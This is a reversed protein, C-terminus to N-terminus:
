VLTDIYQLTFCLHQPLNYYYKNHRELFLETFSGFLPLQVPPGPIKECLKM